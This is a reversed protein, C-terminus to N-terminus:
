EDNSQPRGTSQAGDYQAYLEKGSAPQLASGAEQPNLSKQDVTSRPAGDEQEVQLESLHTETNHSDPSHQSSASTSGTSNGLRTVIAGGVAIIVILLILVTYLHSKPPAKRM